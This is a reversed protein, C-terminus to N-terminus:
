RPLVTLNLTVTQSVQVGSTSSATVTYQYTGTPAYRLNPDGATGSGCGLAMLTCITLVLSLMVPMRSRLRQRMTWIGFGGPLLLCIFVPLLYPDRPAKLRATGGVSTVTNLTAIATMAGSGALSVSGPQISCNVYSGPLVASCSFVVTGGFNNAPAVSLHYVAPQGSVVSVSSSPGGDVALTFSGSPIGTGNLPLIVPSGPDSSSVTLTGARGGTATPLFTVQVSCSAGPALTTSACPLTVAYDGSAVLSLATITVTGTNTFTLTLNSPAGVVVSGFDLSSRSVLLKSQIGLGTLLLTLPLPTASSAVSISGQRLGPATPAFTIQLTCVGNPPLSGGASPCNGGVSYDAAATVSNFVVAVASTNMMQVALTETAGVLVAGFSLGTPSFTLPAASATVTLSVFELSTSSDSYIELAARHSGVTQPTASVAINCNAGPAVTACNVSATFDRGAFASTVHLAVTGTNILTINQPTSGSGVSTPAFTLSNQSLVYTALPGSINSAVGAVPGALGTLNIVTPSSAADSEITLAGADRLAAPSGNGAAVDNMPAYTVRIHCSGSVPLLDGCDTTSLFPPGSSVRRVTMTTSGTGGNTVTFIQTSTQGSNVQGFDYVGGVILAGSIALSDHGLGYGEVYALTTISATGDSPVGTAVITGPAEGNILPAFSLAFSCSGNPAVTSCTPGVLSYQRPFNLSLGLSKTTFNAVTFQQSLGTTGTAAPGFQVQGPTIQLGANGATYDGNLSVTYNKTQVSGNVFQSVPLVLSAITAANGPVFAVSVVCSANPALSVCASTASFNASTASPPGILLVPLGTNTLTVSQTTATPGAVNSFTLSLPDIALGPDAVGVGTLVASAVLSGGPITLTGKQTGTATPAFAVSVFCSASYALTGICPQGATADNGLAFDGSVTINGLTIAAGSSSQNTLTFFVSGSTSHIPITGFDSSTPTLVLGTGSLGNGTLSVVYPSGGTVSSIALLGPQNGASTPQFRVAVFCNHCPGTVTSTFVSAPPVGPGFGSDEILATTYPGSATVTLSAFPQSVKYFRTYPQGVPVSGFDFAGNTSTLVDTATGSLQVYVPSTGSGATVALLGSRSGPQSPAFTVVVACTQGAGLSAGCSTATLFDGTVALTLGFASAGSNIISVTQTTSSLTTVAIPNVFTVNIPTVSLNPNVGSGTVGAPPLTAGKLLVTAGGDLTLTLSDTSTTKAALYDVRIQCVSKPLLITGCADSITFPSTANTSLPTHPQATTSSNSLYLFRPLRLGGAFQTGFDLESASISMAAAQSYATLTVSRGGLNWASKELGDDVAASSPIFSISIHCTAGPALVKTPPSAALSCDSSSEVFSAASVGAGSSSFTQPNAGLNAITIVRSAQPSTSTQIGFDLERPSLVLTNLSAAYAPFAVSQSQTDSSSVSVVGAGGGTLLLDCQSGPGLATPCNTSLSGASSRVQVNDAQSTGLNRLKIFPLDDVSFSLAAGATPSIKTLYAASGSCLSGSCTAASQRADSLMSPLASTITNRLPLDYTETALLSSSATPQIAGAFLVEDAADVAISTLLSPISAFSNNSIAAGGLRVTQDITGSSTVRVAFGDGVDALAPLPLIPDILAGDVWAASNAAAAVYSETGPALLVSSKLSSGDLSVRLLVQYEENTMPASVVSVPFQGSTVSGSVLLSQGGSDLAVSTLGPGPVFTSFVIADGAPSLKTLFGSPNSLVAPVLAAVTPFGPASTSGVVYANDAADAVIASPTTDGQAGTLYTAYLLSGSTSFKEVFGNQVSGNAPSQLIGNATVPLNSAYTIGTVFVADSTATVAGAAIKSGGTFTVFQNALNSDFKAVFSQTSGDTPSPFAAGGTATLTSSTTTGTVYVNANPDLAIGLGVDGKAGLLAMALIVGGANDTKLVRVGDKEDLLLYVNGAADTKVGNIKGQQGVSRLGSFVLQQATNMTPTQASLGQM